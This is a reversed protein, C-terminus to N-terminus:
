IQSVKTNRYSINDMSMIAKSLKSSAKKLNLSLRDYQKPKKLETILLDYINMGLNKDYKISNLKNFFDEM